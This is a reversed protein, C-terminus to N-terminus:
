VREEAASVDIGDIALQVNALLTVEGGDIQRDLREILQRRLMVLKECALSGPLGSQRMEALTLM